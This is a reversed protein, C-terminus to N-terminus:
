INIFPSSSGGRFMAVFEASPDKSPFNPSIKGNSIDMLLKENLTYREKIYDPIENSSVREFLFYLMYDLVLRKITADRSDDKKSFIIYTDYRGSLYMSIHSIAMQELEVLITIDDESIASLIHDFKRINLEQDKIFTYNM